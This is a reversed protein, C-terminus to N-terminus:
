KSGGPVGQQKGGTNLPCDKRYHSFDGCGFCAGGAWARRQGRFFTQGATNGGSTSPLQSLVAGGGGSRGPGGYVRGYKARSDKKAVKDKRKKNAKAEAKNIKKEDESDSALPNTVYCKVTEWGCESSDALKVLKNRGKIESVSKELLECCYDTKGMRLAWLAQTVDEQIGNNFKFQEKNGQRKWTFEPETKVKKFGAEQNETSLEQRLTELKSDLYKTLENRQEKISDLVVALSTETM